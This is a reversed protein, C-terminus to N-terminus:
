NRQFLTRRKEKPPLTLEKPITRLSLEPVRRAMEEGLSKQYKQMEDLKNNVKEAFNVTETTLYIAIKGVTDYAEFLQPTSLDKAQIMAFDQFMKQPSRAEVKELRENFDLITPSNVLADEIIPYDRRSQSVARQSLPGPANSQPPYDEEALEPKKKISISSIVGASVIFGIAMIEMALNDVSNIGFIPIVFM